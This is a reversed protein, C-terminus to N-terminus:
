PSKQSEKIATQTIGSNKHFLGLTIDRIRIKDAMKLTGDVAQPLRSTNPVLTEILNESVKAHLTDVRVLSDPDEVKEDQNGMNIINKKDASAIM